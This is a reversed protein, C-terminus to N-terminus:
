MLQQLISKGHYCRCICLLQNAYHHPAFLFHAKITRTHLRCACRSNVYVNFCCHHSFPKGLVDTSPLVQQDPEHCRSSGASSAAAGSAEKEAERDAGAGHWDTHLVHWTSDLCNTTSMNSKHQKFYVMNLVTSIQICSMAPMSQTPSLLM